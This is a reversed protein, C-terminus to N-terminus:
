PAIAAPPTDIQTFSDDGHPFLDPYVTFAYYGMLRRFRKLSAVATEADPKMSGYKDIVTITDIQRPEKPNSIPAQFYLDVMPNTRLAWERYQLPETFPDPSPNMHFPNVGWVQGHLSYSGKDDREQPRDDDPSPQAFRTTISETIAFEEPFFSEDETLKKADVSYFPQENIQSRSREAKGGLLPGGFALALRHTQTYIRDTDPTISTTKGLKITPSQLFDAAYIRSGDKLETYNTYEALVSSVRAIGGGVEIRRRLINRHAQWLVVGVLYLKKLVEKNQPSQDAYARDTAWRQGADVLKPPLQPTEPSTM